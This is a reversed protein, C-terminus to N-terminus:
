RPSSSFAAPTPGPLRSPKVLSWQEGRSWQGSLEDVRRRLVEEPEKTRRRELEERKDALIRDLFTDTM